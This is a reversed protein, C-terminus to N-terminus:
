LFPIANLILAILKVILFIFVIILAITCATALLGPMWGVCLTWITVLGEIIGSM